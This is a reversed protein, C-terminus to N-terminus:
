VVLVVLVVLRVRKIPLGVAVAVQAVKQLTALHALAETAVPLQTQVTLALLVVAVLLLEHLRGAKGQLPQFLHLLTGAALVVVVVAM